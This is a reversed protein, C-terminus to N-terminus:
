KDGNLPLKYGDKHCFKLNKIEVEIGTLKCDGILDEFANKKVYALTLHSKYDNYKLNVECSQKIKNHLNNFDESEIEIILVDCDDQRFKNIKGFKFKFIGNVINRLKFYDNENTLGYLITIHPNNEIGYEEDDSQVLIQHLLEKKPSTRYILDDTLNLQINSIINLIQSKESLNDYLYTIVSHRKYKLDEKFLRTIM